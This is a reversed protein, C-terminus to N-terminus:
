LEEAPAPSGGPNPEEFAGIERVQWRDGVWEWVQADTLGDRPPPHEQDRENQTSM